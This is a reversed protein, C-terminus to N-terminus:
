ARGLTHIVILHGAALTVCGESQTLVNSVGRAPGPVLTERRLPYELGETLVGVADGTWPLLSVTDGPAGHVVHTGPGILWTTQCGAVLRVDRGALAPLALLYVNALTQDLRDGVGGIIRIWAAGRGAALMLALELDTENKHVPHREIVAGQAQLAHAEADPLSDLDGVIVHPVLGCASACRAGGDAAVIIAEPAYRLAARVAPGDNLDGNAFVLARIIEGPM